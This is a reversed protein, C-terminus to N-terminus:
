SPSKIIGFTSSLLLSCFAMWNTELSLGLTDKISLKSSTIALFIVASFKWFAPKSVKFILLAFAVTAILKSFADPSSASLPNFSILIMM